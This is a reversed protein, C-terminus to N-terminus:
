LASKHSLFVEYGFYESRIVERNMWKAVFAFLKENYRTLIFLIGRKLSWYKKRISAIINSFLLDKLLVKKKYSVQILGYYWFKGLKFYCHTWKLVPGQPGTALQKELGGTSPGSSTWLLFLRKYLTPSLVSICSIFDSNAPRHMLAIGQIVYFQRM